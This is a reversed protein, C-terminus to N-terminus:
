VGGIRSTPSRLRHHAGKVARDVLSDIQIETEEVLQFLPEARGASGRLRVHDRVLQPVVNLVNKTGVRLYSARFFGIWSLRVLKRYPELQLAVAVGTDPGM